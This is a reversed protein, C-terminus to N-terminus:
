VSRGCATSTRAPSDGELHQLLRLVQQQVQEGGSNTCNRHGNRERGIERTRRTYWARLRPASATTRTAPSQARVQPEQGHPLVTRWRERRGDQPRPRPPRGPAAVGLAARDAHPRAHQDDAVEVVDREVPAPQQARPEDREAERREQERHGTDRALRNLRTWPSSSVAARPLRPAGRPPGRAALAALERLGVAGLALEQGVHAVLDARRHVAHDAHRPRSRVGREVASCRSYASVM